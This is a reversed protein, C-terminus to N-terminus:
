IDTISKSVRTSRARCPATASCTRLASARALDDPFLMVALLSLPANDYFVPLPILRQTTALPTIPIPLNAIMPPAGM